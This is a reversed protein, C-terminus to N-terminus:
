GKGMKTRSEIASYAMRARKDPTKANVKCFLLFRDLDAEVRVTGMNRKALADVFEQADTLWESYRSYFDEPDSCADRFAFYEAESKYWITGQYRFKDPSKEM